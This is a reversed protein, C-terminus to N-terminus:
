VDLGEEVLYVLCGPVVRSCGLQGIYEVLLLISLCCLLTSCRLLQGISAALKLGPFYLLLILGFEGGELLLDLLALLLGLSRLLLGLVPHLGGVLQLDLLVHELGLLDIGM